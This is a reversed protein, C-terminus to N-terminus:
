TTRAEALVTAARKLDHVNGASVSVAIPLESATDCLVHVKFGYVFKNRGNTGKKVIWGAEGDTEERAGNAWAKVDTADIAVTQAFDPFRRYCERVLDRFVNKVALQPWRRRLRGIFRSYAYPSPIGDVTKIGCAKRFDANDRLERILARFTPIGRYAGALYTRWLVRYGYGNRGAYYTKLKVLVEDEDVADFVAQLRQSLTTTTDNCIGSHKRM